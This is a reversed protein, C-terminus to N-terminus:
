VKEEAGLNAHRPLQNMAMREASSM